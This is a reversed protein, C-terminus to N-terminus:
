RGSPILVNQLEKVIIHLIQFQIPLKSTNLLQKAVAQQGNKEGKEIRKKSPESSILRYLSCNINDKSHISILTARAEMRRRDTQM